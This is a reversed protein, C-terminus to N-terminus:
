QGGESWEAWMRRKEARRTAVCEPCPCEDTEDHEPALVIVNVEDGNIIRGVLQDLLTRPRDM